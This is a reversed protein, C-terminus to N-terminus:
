GTKIQEIATAMLEDMTRRIQHESQEVGGAAFDAFLRRMVAVVDLQSVLEAVRFEDLVHLLKM